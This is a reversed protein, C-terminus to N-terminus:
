KNPAQVRGRTCPQHAHLGPLSLDCVHPTVAEQATCAIEVKLRLATSATPAARLLPPAIVLALGARCGILASSLDRSGVVGASPRKFCGCFLRWRLVKHDTSPM